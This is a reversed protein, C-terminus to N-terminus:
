GESPTAPAGGAPSDSGDGATDEAANEDAGEDPGEDPGELYLAHDRLYAQM